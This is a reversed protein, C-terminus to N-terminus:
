TPKVMSSNPILFTLVGPAMCVQVPAAVAPVHEAHVGNTPVDGGDTTDIVAASTDKGKIPM